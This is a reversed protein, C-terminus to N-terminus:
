NLNLEFKRTGSNYLRYLGMKNTIEFETLTPDYGMRILKDKRFNFRNLLMGTKPNYYNYTINSIGKDEFGLIKYLKGQSYDENAYSIIKSPQYTKIFHKLLKSAGGIVNTNLLSCYRVLEKSNVNTNKNGLNLRLNGFGMCAVLENNYFLGIKIASTSYGQIHNNVCFERYVKANIEKIKCKRAYIKNPNNGLKNLIMSKIIKNKINNNWDNEWIHFININHQKFFTSKNYHYKKDKFLHSHWYVGNYEFGLNLNSVYVDIEKKGITYRKEVEGNYNDKIFDFVNNEDKSSFSKNDQYCKICGCGQLHDGICQNFKGHESCIIITDSFRGNYESLSYDYKNNHIESGKRIFEKLYITNFKDRSCKKCESDYLHYSPKTIFDGHEPCTIIIDTTNNIYNTKKYSYKNQYKLSAQEIFHKQKENTNKSCSPCKHGKIHINIQQEFNGHIPCKIKIKQLINNYKFNPYLYFNNHIENFRNIVENYSLKTNDKACNPCGRCASLHVDALLEFEGHKPCKININNNNGKYESLSYDYINEHIINAKEIFTKTDIVRINLQEKRCRSCLHLKNKYLKYPIINFIGHKNCSIIIPNNSNIYNVKSFDYNYKGYYEQLKNIIQEQTHPKMGIPTTTM